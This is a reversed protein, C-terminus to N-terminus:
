SLSRARAIDMIQTEIMNLENEDLKLELKPMVEDFLYDDIKNQLRKQADMNQWLNVISHEKVIKLIEISIQALFDEFNEGQKAKNVIIPVIVGYFAQADQNDIISIPVNDHKGQAVDNAIEKVKLLYETELIRKEKYARITEELMESFAKYFAPDTDMKETITKKTASAIRDAKSADTIKQEGLVNAIDEPKHINLEKVIIQAPNAIIHDDLLKQIKPEFEKIDVIEQYRIQISRKLNSFRKWDAKYKELHEKSYVDYAKEFFSIWNIGSSMKAARETVLDWGEM